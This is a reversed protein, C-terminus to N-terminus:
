CVSEDMAELRAALLFCEFGWVRPLAGVLRSVDPSLPLM